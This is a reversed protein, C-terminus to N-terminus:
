IRLFLRLLDSPLIFTGGPPGSLWLPDSRWEPPEGMAREMENLAQAAQGLDFDLYPSKRAALVHRRGEQEPGVILGRLFGLRFAEMWAGSSVEDAMGFLFGNTGTDLVRLAPSAGGVHPLKGEMLYERVWGVTLRLNEGTAGKSLNPPFLSGLRMLFRTFAPDLHSLYPLGIRHAADVTAITAPTGPAIATERHLFLTVAFVTDFGGIARTAFRLPLPRGLLMDEYLRQLAGPADPHFGEGHHEYACAPVSRVQDPTAGTEFSLTDPSLVPVGKDVLVSLTLEM